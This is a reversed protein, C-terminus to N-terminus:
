ELEEIDLRQNKGAKVPVEKIGLRRDGGCGLGDIGAGQGFERLGGPKRVSATRAGKSQADQADDREGKQRWPTASNAREAKPCSAVVATDTRVESFVGELCKPSYPM